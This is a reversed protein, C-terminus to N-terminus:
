RYSLVVSRKNVARLLSIHSSELGKEMLILASDIPSGVRNSMVRASRLLDQLVAEVLGVQVYHLYCPFARKRGPQVPYGDVQTTVSQLLAAHPEFREFRYRVIKERFRM